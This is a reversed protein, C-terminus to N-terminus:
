FLPRVDNVNRCSKIDKYINKDIKIQDHKVIQYNERIILEDTNELEFLKDLLMHIDYDMFRRIPSTFHTYFQLFLAWHMAQKTDYKARQFSSLIMNSILEVDKENNQRVYELINMIQRPNKLIDKKNLKYGQQLLLDLVDNLIINNPKDHVRFISPFCSNFLLTAIESNTIVMETEIVREATGRNEKTFSAENNEDINISTKSPELRIIGEKNRRADIKQTMEYGIKISEVFPEYGEPIIDNELISNVDDYSMKKKSNIVSKVVKSNIIYGNEDVDMILSKTLRDKGENLSCIGNAMKPPFMHIAINRLYMTFKRKRAEEYLAGGFKAYHNPEAISTIHHYINGIKKTGVADDMDKTKIGDITYIMENRYDHNKRSNIDEESTEDPITELEEYAEKSYDLDCEHEVAILALKPDINTDTLIIRSGVLECEFENNIKEKDPKVLIYDGDILNKIKNQNIKLNLVGKINHPILKKNGNKEKIQCLVPSSKRSLIKIINGSLTYIVTDNPLAGNINEKKLSLKSGDELIIYYNGKLSSEVIGKKYDEPMIKYENNECIIIGEEELTNIILEPEKNIKSIKKIYKQLKEFTINKENNLYYIIDEILEKM